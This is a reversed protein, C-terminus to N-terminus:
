VHTTINISAMSNSSVYAFFSYTDLVTHISCLNGTVTKQGETLSSWFDDVMSMLLILQRQFGSLQNWWDHWFVMDQSGQYYMLPERFWQLCGTQEMPKCCHLLSGAAQIMLGWRYPNKQRTKMKQLSFERNWCRMNCFPRLVLPAAQLSVHLWNDVMVSEWVEISCADVTNERIRTSSRHSMGRSHVDATQFTIAQPSQSSTHSRTHWGWLTFRENRPHCKREKYRAKQSGSPFWVETPQLFETKQFFTHVCSSTNYGSTCLSLKPSYM